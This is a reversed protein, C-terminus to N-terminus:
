AAFDGAPPLDCGPGDQYLRALDDMLDPFCSPDAAIMDLDVHLRSGGGPLLSLSFAVAEGRELALRQHSQDERLRELALQCDLTGLRRLDHCVLFPGPGPPLIRPTGDPAVALRLNAHRAILAAVARELRDPDLAGDRRDLEVYLHASPGQAAKAGAHGNVWSAAQMPTLDYM